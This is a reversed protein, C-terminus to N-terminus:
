SQRPEDDADRRVGEEKYHRRESPTQGLEDASIGVGTERGPDRDIPLDPKGSAVSDNVIDGDRADENRMREKAM